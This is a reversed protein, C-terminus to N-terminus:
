RLEEDKIKIENTVVGDVMATIHYASELRQVECFVEMEEANVIPEVEILTEDNHDKMTVEFGLVRPKCLERKQKYSNCFLDQEKIKGTFFDAFVKGFVETGNYNLHNDDNYYSDSQLNLVNPNCLNFDYYPMDYERLFDKIVLVYEDYNQMVELHFDTVPLSVFTLRINNKKCFQIIEKLYEQQQQPIDFSRQASDEMCWLTGEKVVTRSAIHGKGAYSDDTELYNYYGSTNKKKLIEIIEQPNKTYGRGKHLPMFSNVYYDFSTANLLYSIKRLSPKMYDSIIYISELNPTDRMVISYDLDVYVQELDHYKEAEKILALTTELGQSSSGANFTNREFGVDLVETDFGLQCHSAGCFLIDINDDETYLDHMMVRSITLTDDLIAYKILAQGGVFIACFMVIKLIIKLKKM